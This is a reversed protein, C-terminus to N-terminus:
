MMTLMDLLSIMMLEDTVHGEPSYKSMCQVHLTYMIYM